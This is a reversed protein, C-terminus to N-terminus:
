APAAAERTASARIESRTVQPANPLSSALHEKIWGSAKATSADAEARGTFGSLTVVTGGGTDILGYSAFGPLGSVIPVFENQAQKAIEKVSGVVGEYRRMVGFKIQEGQKQHRFLMTGSTVTPPTPLLTALNEKVWGAATKISEDAGQEDDFVSTTTLDGDDTAAIRYSQFGRVKRILPIFGSEARRVVEDRDQANVKYRRIVAHM